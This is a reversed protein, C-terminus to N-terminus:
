LYKRIDEIPKTAVSFLISKVRIEHIKELKVIEKRNFMTNSVIFPNVIIKMPENAHFADNIAKYEPLKQITNALQQFADYLHTGKLEVPIIWKKHNSKLLFLGDCTSRDNKIVCGDLVLAVAEEGRKPSLKVAKGKERLTLIGACMDVPNKNAQCVCNNFLGLNIM